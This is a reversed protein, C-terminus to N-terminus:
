VSRLSDLIPIYIQELQETDTQLNISNKQRKIYIMESLLRKILIPEEDLIKVNEWDFEHNTLRHDTIVSRQSTNRNIHNRHEKM